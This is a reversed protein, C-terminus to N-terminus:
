KYGLEKLTDGMIENMIEQEKESFSKRWGGPTASRAFKGKGKLNTPINEFSFKEVIMKLTKNDIDIELFKYIKELEELTNKRLDEYRVKIRKEKSHSNIANLMIETRKVWSKSLREIFELKNRLGRPQGEKSTRWTNKQFADMNSDIIDRGDRLIFIIKSKPMCQSILDAIMSASPEKIIVKKSLDQFQVYLRNLILKRLYPM